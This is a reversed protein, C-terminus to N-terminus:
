FLDKHKKTTPFFELSNWPMHFTYSIETEIFVSKNSGLEIWNTWMNDTAAETRLLCLQINTVSVTQGLFSFINVTQGKMYAFPKSVGRLSKFAKICFNSVVQVSSRKYKISLKITSSLWNSQLENTKMKFISISKSGQTKATYRPAWQPACACYDHRVPATTTACLRENHRVPAWQPACACYDHCVPAWQPACASMTACMRPLWPACASMTACLRPLRPVCTSMTCLRENHRVHTTTTACLRANDRVPVTTTCLRENHRVPATTTACLRENHRVPATTTACLRLQWARTSLQEAVYLIKTGQDPLSGKDGQMALHNKLWQVVLSTGTQIKFLTNIPLPIQSHIFNLARPAVIGLTHESAGWLVRPSYSLKLKQPLVTITWMEYVSCVRSEPYNATEPDWQM